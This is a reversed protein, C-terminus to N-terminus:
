VPHFGMMDPPFSASLFTTTLCPVDPIGQLRDFFWLMYFYMAYRVALM